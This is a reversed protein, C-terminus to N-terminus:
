EKLQKKLTDEIEKLSKVMMEAFKKMEKLTPENVKHILKDLKKGKPLRKIRAMAKEVSYGRESLKEAEIRYWAMLRGLQRQEEATLKEEARDLFQGFNKILSLTGPSILSSDPSLSQERFREVFEKAILNIHEGVKKRPGESLKKSSAVM